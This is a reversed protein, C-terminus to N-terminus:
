KSDKVRSKATAAPRNFKAKKIQKKKPASKPQTPRPITRGELKSRLYDEFASKHRDQFKDCRFWEKTFPHPKIPKYCALHVFYKEISIVGRETEIYGRYM